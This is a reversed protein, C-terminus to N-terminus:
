DFLGKIIKKDSKKLTEQYVRENHKYSLVRADNDDLCHVGKPVTTTDGNFTVALMDRKTWNFQIDNLCWYVTQTPLINIYLLDTNDRLMAKKMKNVTERQIYLGDVAGIDKRIRLKIMLSKVISGNENFLNIICDYNNFPDYIMYYQYTDYEYRQLLLPMMQKLCYIRREEHEVFVLQDTTNNTQKM